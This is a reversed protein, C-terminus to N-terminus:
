HEAFAREATATEEPTETYIDFKQQDPYEARAEEVNEFRDMVGNTAKEIVLVNFSPMASEERNTQM